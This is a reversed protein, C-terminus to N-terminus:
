AKKKPEEVIRYTPKEAIVLANFARWFTHPEVGVDTGKIDKGNDDIKILHYWRDDKLFKPEEIKIEQLKPKIIVPAEKTEEKTEEKAEEKKM